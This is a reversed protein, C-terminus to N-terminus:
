CGYTIYASHSFRFLDLWIVIFWVIYKKRYNPLGVKMNITFTVM